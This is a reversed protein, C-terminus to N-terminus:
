KDECLGIPEYVNQRSPDCEECDNNERLKSHKEGPLEVTSLALAAFPGVFYGYRRDDNTVLGTFLTVVAKINRIMERPDTFGAELAQALHTPMQNVPVYTKCGDNTGGVNQLFGKEMRGTRIGIEVDRISRTRILNGVLGSEMNCADKKYQKRMDPYALDTFRAINRATSAAALPALKAIMEGLVTFMNDIKPIEGVNNQATENIQLDRVSSNRSPSSRNPNNIQKIIELIFKRTNRFPKNEEVERDFVSNAQLMFLSEYRDFPFMFDFLYRHPKGLEENDNNSALPAVAGNEYSLLDRMGDNKFYEHVDNNIVRRRHELLEASEQRMLVNDKHDFMNFLGQFNPAEDSELFLDNFCGVDYMVEDVPISYVAIDSFGPPTPNITVRGQDDSFRRSQNLATAQLANSYFVSENNLIGDETVVDRPEAYGLFAKKKSFINRFYPYNSQNVVGIQSNIGSEFYSSDASNQAVPVKPKFQTYIYQPFLTSDSRGLYTGERTTRLNDDRKVKHGTMLRYGCKVNENLFQQLGSEDVLQRDRDSGQDLGFIGSAISNSTINTASVLGMRDLYYQLVLEQTKSDAGLDNNEGTYFPSFLFDGNESENSAYTLFPEYDFGESPGQTGDPDTPGRVIQPNSDSVLHNYWQGYLIDTGDEQTWPYTAYEVSNKFKTMATLVDSPITNLANIDRIVPTCLGASQSRINGFSDPVTNVPWNQSLEVFIALVESIITYREEKSISNFLPGPEEFFERYLWRMTEVKEGFIKNPMFERAIDPREQTNPNITNEDSIFQFMPTNPASNSELFEVVQGIRDAIERKTIGGSTLNFDVETLKQYNNNDIYENFIVNKLRGNNVDADLTNITISYTNMLQNRETWELSEASLEYTSEDANFPDETARKFANIKSMGLYQMLGYIMSNENIFKMGGILSLPFNVRSFHHTLMKLMVYKGYERRRERQATPPEDQTGGFLLIEFDSPSIYQSYLSTDASEGIYPLSTKLTNERDLGEELERYKEFFTEFNEIKYFKEVWFHGSNLKLQIMEDDYQDFRFQEYLNPVRNSLPLTDYGFQNSRARNAATIGGNHSSIKPYNDVSPVQKLNDVLEAYFLDKFSRHQTESFNAVFDAIAELNLNITVLKLIAPRHGPSDEELTLKKILEIIQKGTETRELDLEIESTIEKVLYNVIAQERLVGDAGFNSFMFCSKLCKELAFLGIYFKFLNSIISNEMNGNITFDRNTIQENNLVRKSHSEIFQRVMFEFDLARPNKIWCPNNPETRDVVYRRGLIDGFQQFNSLNFLISKRTLIQIHEVFSNVYSSYLSPRGRSDDGPDFVDASFGQIRARATTDGPPYSRNGPEYNSVGANELMSVYSNLMLDTFAGSRLLKYDHRDSVVDMHQKRRQVYLDPINEYYTGAFNNSDIGSFRYCDKVGGDSNQPLRIFPIEHYTTTFTDIFLAPRGRGPLNYRRAYVYVSQERDGNYQGELTSQLTQKSVVPYDSLVEFLEPLVKEDRRAYKTVYSLIYTNAVDSLTNRAEEIPTNGAPDEIPRGQGVDIGGFKVLVGTEDESEFNDPKPYMTLSYEMFEHEEEKIGITLLESRERDSLVGPIDLKQISDPEYIRNWPASAFLEDPAFRNGPASGDLNELQYLYFKYLLYDYSDFGSEGPQILRIDDSEIVSQIFSNIELNYYQRANTAVTQMVRAISDRMESNNEPSPIGANALGANSLEPILASFDGTQALKDFIEKRKDADRLAKKIEEESANGDALTARIRDEITEDDTACPDYRLAGRETLDKIRECFYPEIVTGLIYFFKKIESETSLYRRIVSQTSMIVSKVVAIVEETPRGELLSCLEYPTLVGSIQDMLASITDETEGSLSSRPINMAEIARLTKELLSLREEANEFPARLPDEEKEKNLASFALIGFRLTEECDPFRITELVRKIFSCIFNMIINEISIKIQPLVFQLPDFPRLQQFSPVEWNFDLNWPGINPVCKTYECLLFNMDWRNLFEKFMQDIDCSIEGFRPLVDQTNITKGKQELFTSQKLNEISQSVLFQAEELEQAATLISRRDIRANVNLLETNIVNGSRPSRPQINFNLMPYHYRGLFEIAAFTRIDDCDKSASRLQDYIDNLQMFYAVATPSNFPFELILEDQSTPGVQLSRGNVSLFNSIANKILQFERIEEQMDVEPTLPRQPRHFQNRPTQTNREIFELIQEPYKQMEKTVFDIREVIQNVKYVKTVPAASDTHIRAETLEALSKDLHRDKEEDTLLGGQGTRAKQWYNSAAKKASKELKRKKSDTYKKLNNKRDRWFDKTFPRNLDNEVFDRYQDFGDKISQYLEPNALDITGGRRTSGPILDFLDTRISITIKFKSSPRNSPGTISHINAFIPDAGENLSQMFLVDVEPQTIQQSLQAPRAVTFRFTQSQDFSTGRNTRIIVQEYKKRAFDADDGILNYLPDLVGTRPAGDIEWTTDKGYFDFVNIVAQRFLQGIEQKFVDEQPRIFGTVLTYFITEQNSPGLRRVPPQQIELQPDYINGSDDLGEGMLPASAPNSLIDIANGLFGLDECFAIYTAQGLQGRESLMESPSLGSLEMIRDQLRDQEEQLLIKVKVNFYDDVEDIDGMGLFSKLIQVEIGTDGPKVPLKFTYLKDGSGDNYPIFFKNLTQTLLSM